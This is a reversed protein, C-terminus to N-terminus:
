MISRSKHHRRPRSKLAPQGGGGIGKHAEREKDTFSERVFLAALELVNDAMDIGWDVFNAPDRFGEKMIDMGLKQTGKGVESWQKPGRIVSGAVGAGMAFVMQQLTSLVFKPNMASSAPLLGALIGGAVFAYDPDFKARDTIVRLARLWVKNMTRNRITHVLFNSLAMDYRLEDELKQQYALLAQESFDQSRAQQKVIEAAWRGSQMAYQIGEGNLSNILGAADGVLLVRDGVIQQSPNYTTLPWGVIKGEIKANKLLSHLAPDSEVLSKLLDRLHQEVPPLTKLVMGVGVNAKGPGTPFLWYYGPFSKETFYLKARDSRGGVGEYYARVALIRDEKAINKGRMVRGVVTNSGDAGILLKTKFVLSQKKHKAKM